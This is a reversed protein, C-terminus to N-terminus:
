ADEDDHRASCGPAHEDGPADCCPSAPGVHGLALETEGVREVGLAEGDPSEVLTTEYAKLTKARGVGLNLKHMVDRAEELNM